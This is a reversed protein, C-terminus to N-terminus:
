VKLLLVLLLIMIIEIRIVALPSPPGRAAQASRGVGVLGSRGAQDSRTARRAARTARLRGSDSSRAGRLALLRERLAGSLSRADIKSSKLDIKPDIKSTKRQQGRAREEVRNELRNEYKKSAEESSRTPESRFRRGKCFMATPSTEHPDPKAHEFRFDGSIQQSLAGRVVQAFMRFDLSFRAFIPRFNTQSRVTQLFSSNKTGPRSKADIQAAEAREGPRELASKRADRTM